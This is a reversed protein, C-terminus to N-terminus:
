TEGDLLHLALHAADRVLAALEEDTVTALLDGVGDAGVLLRRVDAPSALLRDRERVLEGALDNRATLTDVDLVPELAVEISTWSVGSLAGRHDRLVELLESAAEDGVLDEYAPSRGVLRVRVLVEGGARARTADVIADVVAYLDDCLSADVTVEEFRIPALEVFRPTALGGDVEVLWAGKAGQESPKFSRGQLNGPYAVLPKRPRLVQRRHIHGLLWADFGIEVLDDLRCPSYPAHEGVAGVNAHLVAVHFGPGEPQRFRTHLGTHVARTPFSTGTVTVRAGEPTFLEITEARDAAFVHARYPWSRIASWGEEVPDHNGHAIFTWVGAADLRETADRVRAQARLGRQAGDYVDGALAVFLVRERLATEVLADLADLSAEMLRERLAPDRLSLGEFPTDLHLDAAHLFRFRARHADAM